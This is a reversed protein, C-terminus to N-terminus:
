INCIFVYGYDTTSGLAECATKNGDFESCSSEKEACVFIDPSREYFFCGLM